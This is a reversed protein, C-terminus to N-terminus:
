GRPPTNIPTNLFHRTFLQSCLMCTGLAFPPIYFGLIPWNPWLYQAGLGAQFFELLSFSFVFGAAYLYMFERAVVFLIVYAFGIILLAGFFLGLAYHEHQQSEAFHITEWLVMALKLSSTSEIRFYVERIENRELTLPFALHRHQVERTQFRTLNSVKKTVPEGDIGLWYAEVSDPSYHNVELLLTQSHDLTNHLKVRTWWVSSTFGINPIEESSPKFDLDYVLSSSQQFTLTGAQDELIELHSGLVYRGNESDNLEVTQSAWTNHYPLMLIWIGLASISLLKQMRCQMKCNTKRM